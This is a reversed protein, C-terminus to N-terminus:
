PASCSTAAYSLQEPGDGFDVGLPVDEDDVLGRALRLQNYAAAVPLTWPDAQEPTCRAPTTWALTGRVFRFTHEIDFRRLYAIVCRELDPQGTGSWWLWLTKKGRATQKPLHGVEVRIVSARVIPPLDEGKWRGRGQLKPHLDHWASARITGYRRDTLDATADPPTWTRPDGLM